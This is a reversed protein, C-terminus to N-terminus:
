QEFTLEEEGQEYIQLQTELSLESVLWGKMQCLRKFDNFRNKGHMERLTVVVAFKMGRGYKKYLREKARVSLGWLGSGYAERPRTRKNIVDNIHKINDWKRFMKRAKDEFLIGGDIDGQYNDNVSKIQPKGQKQDKNNKREYVRGFHLDLETLTYDVGQQRACTPFYCLTARCFFPHKGQEVPVPLSYCYTEFENSVGNIIFRIEDDRSTVIEEIRRPLVGYGVKFQQDDRRFWGAAADILLAKAAERTLGMKYILYALKRTVWPAALSTGMDKAPGRSTWINMLENKDGGLYSLDPKNFFELVPGNRSYSAPSGDLRVSNVILSNVSDAPAGIRKNEKDAPRKNTGAVVICIDYENQLHDLMAAEPSISFNDCERESGFSLNWVKIEPNSKVAHEINKLITTSSFISAKTVRFLRVRFHGCGDDLKPNLGPGDVIISSVATGHNKDIEDESIESSLLNEYSVWEQFYATSDFGADLVGVVPEKQPAPLNHRMIEDNFQPQLPSIKQLDKVTMAILYPAKSILERYEKGMIFLTNNFLERCNHPNLNLSAILEILECGTEYLTVIRQEEDKPPNDEVLFSEVYCADAVTSCFKSKSYKEQIFNSAIELRKKANEGEAGSKVSNEQLDKDNEGFVDGLKQDNVWGDFIRDTLDAATELKSIADDLTRLQLFYTFQHKIIYQGGQNLQKIFKSGVILDNARKPGIEDNKNSKEIFIERIRNSKATVNRYIVSVLIGKILKEREGNSDEVWYRRVDRLQKALCKLKQSEVQMSSPIKARGPKGGGVSSDLRGKLRLLNNM